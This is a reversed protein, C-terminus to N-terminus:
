MLCSLISMLSQHESNIEINDNNDKKEYVFTGKNNIEKKRSELIKFFKSENKNPRTRDNISSIEFDNSEMLAKANQSFDFISRRIGKNTMSQRLNKPKDENASKKNTITKAYNNYKKSNLRKTKFKKIEKELKENFKEESENVNDIIFKYIHHSSNSDHSNSKKDKVKINMNNNYLNDIKKNKSKKQETKNQRIKKEKKKKKNQNITKGRRIEPSINYKDNKDNNEELNASKITIKISNENGDENGSKNTFKLSNEDINLNSSRNIKISYEGRNENASKNIINISNENINSSKRLKLSKKILNFNNKKNNVCNIEDNLKIEMLAIEKSKLFKEAGYEDFFNKIYFKNKDKIFEIVNLNKKSSKIPISQKNNITSIKKPLIPSTNKLFFNSKQKDKDANLM